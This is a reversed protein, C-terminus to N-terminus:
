QKELARGYFLMEEKRIVEEQRSDQKLKRKELKQGRLTVFAPFNHYSL